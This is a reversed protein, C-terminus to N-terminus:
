YIERIEDFRKLQSVSLHHKNEDLMEIIWDLDSIKIVTYDIDRAKQAENDRAKQDREDM